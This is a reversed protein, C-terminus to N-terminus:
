EGEMDDDVHYARKVFTQEFGLLYEEARDSGLIIRSVVMAEYHILKAANWEGKRCEEHFRQKYEELKDLLQQNNLM